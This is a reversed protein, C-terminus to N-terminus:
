SGRLLAAEQEFGPLRRAIDGQGTTGGMYASTGEIHPLGAERSAPVRGQLLEGAPRGLVRAARGVGDSLLHDRQALRMGGPAFLADGVFKGFGVAPHGQETRGGDSADQPIGAEPLRAPPGAGPAETIEVITMQGGTDASTAKIVALSGAWWRAEGEDRAVAVPKLTQAGTMVQTM